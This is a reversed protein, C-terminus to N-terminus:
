SRHTAIPFVAEVAEGTYRQLQLEGSCLTRPWGFAFTVLSMWLGRGNHIKHFNARHDAEHPTSQSWLMRGGFSAALGSRIGTDGLLGAELANCIRM